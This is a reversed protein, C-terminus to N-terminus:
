GERVQDPHGATSYAERGKLWELVAEIRYLVRSGAKCFPPGGGRSRWSQLTPVAIGIMLAIEHENAFLKEQTGM